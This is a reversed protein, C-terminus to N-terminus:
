RLMTQFNTNIFPDNLVKHEDATISKKSSILEADEKTIEVCDPNKAIFYAMRQRFNRIFVCDLPQNKEVFQKMLPSLDRACTSPKTKLVHLLTKIGILNIKREGTSTEEAANYIQHSM